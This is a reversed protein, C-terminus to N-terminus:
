CQFCELYRTGISWTYSTCIFCIITPTSCAVKNETHVKCLNEKPYPRNSQTYIYHGTYCVFKEINVNCYPSWRQVKQIIWVYAMMLNRNVHESPEHLIGRSGKQILGSNKIIPNTELESGWQVESVYLDYREAKDSVCSYKYNKCLIKCM